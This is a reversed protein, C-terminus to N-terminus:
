VIRKFKKELESKDMSIITPRGHPCFYPNELALLDGILAEAERRDLAHSGKVAAKCSMSAIKELVLKPPASKKIDPHSDLIELLIQRADLGFLNGPVGCVAYERGGFPSIEFGLAELQKQFTELSVIQQEDLSLILPPSLIQTTSERHEFSRMMKEYLVKEHAAHQDIIFLKKQYEVLWYTDFVQGILKHQKQAEKSLFKGEYRIEEQVYEPEPQRKETSGSRYQAASPNAAATPVSCTKNAAVQSQVAKKPLESPPHVSKKETHDPYKPEYPSDKQIAAKMQEMRKKEFPEPPLEKNKGKSSSTRGYERGEMRPGVSVSRIHDKQSLTERVANHLMEYIKQSESFRLEMKAPHVNIDLLTKDFTFYLVSFPYQHQMLYPKYADEMGKAILSSKIYRGNIFYMEFNRNGRSVAPTGIWGSVSFLENSSEIQILSSAIERGYIQYVADKVNSNGSTHLKMQNNIMLKFSIDPRSLALRETLTHIYGAETQATKLFKRRAPTNYFLNRVLFTTGDPAGIEEAEKEVSGEIVYRIGTLNAATKTILEVQAVAAISSLAEGRFGLSSVSLLDEVSKIKSTSHRLFARAAQNKEIGSGNDTIRILSIGGDKIEVTIATAGADISNEVLEKVVSSPREIVEGAAIKDITEQSLLAIEAM